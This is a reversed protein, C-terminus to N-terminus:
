DEENFKRNVEQNGESVWVGFLILLRVLWVAMVGLAFWKLIEM